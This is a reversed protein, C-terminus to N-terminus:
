VRIIHNWYPEGVIDDPAKDGIAGKMEEIEKGLEERYGAPHPREKLWNIKAVIRGHWENNRHPCLVRLGYGPYGGMHCINFRCGCVRCERVQMTRFTAGRYHPYIGDYVIDYLTEDTVGPTRKERSLLPLFEGAGPCDECGTWRKPGGDAGVAVAFVKKQHVACIKHRSRQVLMEVRRVPRM